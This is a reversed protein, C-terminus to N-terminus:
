YRPWPLCFRLRRVIRGQASFWEVGQTGKAEAIEVEFNANPFAAELAKLAAEIGAAQLRELLSKKAGSLYDMCIYEMAV